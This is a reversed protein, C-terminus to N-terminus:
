LVEILVYVRPRNCTLYSQGLLRSFGDLGITQLLTRNIAWAFCVLFSLKFISAIKRRKKMVTNLKLKSKSSVRITEM